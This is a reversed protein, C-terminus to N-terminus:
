APPLSLADAEDPVLLACPFSGLLDEVRCEREAAFDFVAGSLINRYRGAPVVTVTDGWHPQRATQPWLRPWFRPALVVIGGDQGTRAFAILCDAHTGHPRLPVYDGRAFLLPWRRRAALVRGILATKVAGDHWSARLDALPLPPTQRAAAATFNVPRRNDPDVMALNWRESGQFFDPVGPVTLRLLTASLSTLAGWFGFLDATAAFDALFPGSRSPDLSKDIFDNLAAEYAPDPDAWNTQEKAERAAKVLAPRLRDAFAALGDTDEPALGPPWAGLMTQFLYYRENADIAADIDRSHCWRTLAADWFEAASSTCLLRARADEGRKTDHTSGAVLEDPRTRRKTQNIAHFAEIGLPRADPTGGVENLALFPVYQYFVTDELGKAMAPGSIQQFLTALDLGAPCDDTSRRDDAGSLIAHLFVALERDALNAADFAAKLRWRDTADAGDRDVYCRYVPLVAIIDRFAQEFLALPRDRLGPRTAALRHAGRALRGIESRYETELFRRKASRLMAGPAATRGTARRYRGILYDAGAEDYFLRDIAGLRDYGTSGAVPWSQPLTEGEALIKEVLIYPERGYSRIARDLRELYAKPDALGDIHDIRLGDISGDEVLRLILRHSETFVAADEVRIAILDNIAFFRRYNIEAAARRWEALYWHQRDLLRHLRTPSGRNLARVVRGADAEARPPLSPPTLPWAQGRWQATFGDAGHAIRIERAKLIEDLPRDLVPLMVKGRLYPQPSEWDIDFFGAGAAARGWRLVDMWRGNDAGIGMHNPVLDVIIGLAHRRFNTVMSHFDALAGLDPALRDHDVVDYGHPSGAHAALIPSLYVHSIGLGALYPAVRAADAFTFKANLQLRYTARPPLNATEAM